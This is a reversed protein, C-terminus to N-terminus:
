TRCISCPAESLSFFKKWVSYMINQIKSFSKNLLYTSKRIACTNYLRAENQPEELNLMTVTISSYLLQLAWQTMFSSSVYSVTTLIIRMTILNSDCAIIRIVWGTHWHSSWNNLKEMTVTIWGDNFYIFLRMVKRLHILSRCFCRFAIFTPPTAQLTTRRGKNPTSKDFLSVQQPM